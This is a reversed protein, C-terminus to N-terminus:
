ETPQDFKIWDDSGEPAPTEDITFPHSAGAERAVELMMDYILRAEEDEPNEIAERTNYAIIAPDLPVGLTVLAMVRALKTARPMADSYDCDGRFDPPALPHIFVALWPGREGCGPCRATRTLGRLRWMERRIRIHESLRRMARM